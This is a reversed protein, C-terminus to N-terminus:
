VDTMRWEAVGAFLGEVQGHSLMSKEEVMVQMRKADHLVELLAVCSKPSQIEGELHAFPDDLMRAVVCGSLKRLQGFIHEVQPRRELGLEDVCGIFQCVAGGIEVISVFRVQQIQILDSCGHRNKRTEEGLNLFEIGIRRLFQLEIFYQASNEIAPHAVQDLVRFGLNLPNTM